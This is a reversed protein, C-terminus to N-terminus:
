QLSWINTNSFTCRTGFGTNIGSIVTFGLEGSSLKDKLGTYTKVLHDNVLVRYVNDQVILAFDASGNSSPKGYTGFGMSQWAKDMSYGAEVNGKQSVFVM